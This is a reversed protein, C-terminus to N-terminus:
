GGRHRWGSDAGIRNSTTNQADLTPLRALGGHDWGRCPGTWNSPGAMGPRLRAYIAPALSPNRYTLDVLVCVRGCGLDQLGFCYSNMTFVVVTCGSNHMAM